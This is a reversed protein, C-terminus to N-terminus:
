VKEKPLSNKKLAFSSTRFPAHARYLYICVLCISFNELPRHHLSLYFGRQQFFRGELQTSLYRGLYRKGMCLHFSCSLNMYPTKPSLFLFPNCSVLAILLLNIPCHWKLFDVFSAYAKALCLQLSFYQLSPFLMLWPFSTPSCPFIHLEIENISFGYHLLNFHSSSNPTVSSFSVNVVRLAHADTCMRTYTGACWAGSPLSEIWRSKTKRAIGLVTGSM